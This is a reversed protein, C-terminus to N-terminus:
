QAIDLFLHVIRYKTRPVQCTGVNQLPIFIPIVARYKSWRQGRHVCITTQDHPTDVPRARDIAATKAASPDTATTACSVTTLLLEAAAAVVV